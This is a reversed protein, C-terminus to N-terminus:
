GNAVSAEIDAKELFEALELWRLEKEEIEDTHRNLTETLEALLSWGEDGSSDIESQLKTVKAKLREMEKELNDMEKKAQRLTNRLENRKAREEKYSAKKDEFSTDANQGRNIEDTEIEILTSAYESLTGPFDKVEGNGEFIFLHDAVKDAFSRDHSVVVLVGQFEQLYRELATLTDLDCDVSPEDMVLFNPRGSFVQLMQLRRREGGSLVSVRENWRQKPFEFKQLLKRAEDPAKAATEMGDERSQVSELVFQLVTQEPDIINIGKQDYVGMVLTEGKEITGSNCLIEGMLVKVFTTKGVGNAGALCIRDGAVFDYSFDRLMMRDGFKLEVNSLSLIKGGLRRKEASLLLAPDVPRPKTAAQLKFFADIRAKQKTERAQPQRRMWELEVNYKNKAAQLKAEEKQMREDKAELFNAYSGIYEYLNGQDLELIRDCVSDLFVRDHTVMLITLKQNGQVLVDSLWQVGALSLFNTPEDLLLVDPEQVLAAALAVRKREGGSLNSLPVDTLHRVRLRTAVDEARTLVDWGNFKDMEAAAQAFLHPVKDANQMAQRYRRVAGYVNSPRERSNEAAGEKDMNTTLGLLADGVTLDVQYAPEQEVYAIRLQRPATIRGQFKINEAVHRQDVSLASALIRLFTSKGAGNRGVLAVRAGQPLVYSVDKLQWTEGGNHSCSINDVVFAAPGTPLTSYLSSVTARVSSQFPHRYQSRRGAFFDGLDAMRFATICLINLVFCLLLNTKM